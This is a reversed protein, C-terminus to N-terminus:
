LQFVEGPRFDPKLDWYRTTGRVIRRAGLARLRSAVDALLSSLFDDRDFLIRVEETMDWFLVSGRRAEEPTKLVPALATHVGCRSAHALAAALREDVGEFERVRAMRGVPLAEAVVLIDLDSDPRPTGRAVSGFVALSVLRSGYVGQCAPLLAETLQGFVERLVRVGAPLIARTGTAVNPPSAWFLERVRAM